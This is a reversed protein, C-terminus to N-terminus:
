NSVANLRKQLIKSKPSYKLGEQLINNASKKNGTKIYYDALMWYAKTFKKNKGIAKTLYAAAEGPQDLAFLAEAKSAYLNPFLVFQPDAHEEMYNIEGLASNLLGRKEQRDNESAPLIKQALRISHLAACYHHVHGFGIGHVNLRTSWLNTEAPSSPKLKAKCFPPLLSFDKDTEPYDAISESVNLLLSIFLFVPIKKLM